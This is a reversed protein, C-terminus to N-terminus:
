ACYRAVTQLLAALPLPKPFFAVAELARAHQSSGNGTMVAVPIPALAPDERQEACFAWGNMVPMVLDLLILGPPPHQRLDTLAAEGNVATVVRYGFDGLVTTVLARVAADDEVVMVYSRDRSGAPQAPVSPLRSDALLIGM